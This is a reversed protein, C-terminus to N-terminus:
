EVWYSFESPYHLTKGTKPNPIIVEVKKHHMGKEKAIMKFKGISREIPIPEGDVTISTIPLEYHNVIFIETEILEGMQYVCKKPNAMAIFEIHTFRSSSLQWNMWEMLQLEARLLDGQIKTLFGLTAIRSNNKFHFDAWNQKPETMDEARLSMKKEFEELFNEDVGVADHLLNVLEIRTANIRNQLEKGISGDLHLAKAVRGSGLDNIGFVLMSDKNYTQSSNWEVCTQKLDEIFVNLNSSLQQGKLARKMLLMANEDDGANSVKERLAAYLEVLENEMRENSMELGIYLEQLTKFEGNKTSCSSIISSASLLLIVNIVTKV